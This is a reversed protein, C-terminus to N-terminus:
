EFVSLAERVLSLEQEVEQLRRGVGQRRLKRCLEENLKQEKLLYDRLVPHRDRLLCPGYKFGTTCYIGDPQDMNGGVAKMMPYYKGDELVMDEQVIRFGESYVFRRVAEIGSQPQLIWERMAQAVKRSQTLIRITLPGGMGAIVCADAEGEKIEKLGDSLRTKIYDTLQHMRIHEDARRLPGANVDLAIARPIVGREVLEIPIYGHDTGVDALVTGPTVLAAVASLRKSLQM